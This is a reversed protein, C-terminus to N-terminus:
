ASGPIASRSRQLASRQGAAEGNDLIQPRHVTREGMAGFASGCGGAGDPPIIPERDVLEADRLVLM